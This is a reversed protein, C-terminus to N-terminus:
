KSAEESDQISLGIMEMDEDFVFNFFVTVNEYAVTCQASAYYNKRQKVESLTISETEKYEGWDENVETVATELAEADTDGKADADVYDDLIEQYSKSTFLDVVEASITKVEEEQYLGSTGFDVTKSYYMIYMLLTPLFFIVAIIAMIIIWKKTNGSKQGM